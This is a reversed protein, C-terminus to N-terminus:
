RPRICQNPNLLPVTLALRVMGSYGATDDERFVTRKRTKDTEACSGCNIWLCELAVEELM